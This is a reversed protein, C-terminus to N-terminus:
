FNATTKEGRSRRTQDLGHRRTAPHEHRAQPAIMQLAQGLMELIQAITRQQHRGGSALTGVAGQGRELKNSVFSDVNELFGDIVEDLAVASSCHAVCAGMIRTSGGGGGAGGHIASRARDDRGTRM